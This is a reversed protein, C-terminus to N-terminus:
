PDLHSQHNSYKRGSIRNAALPPTEREREREIERERERNRERERGRGRNREEVRGRERV